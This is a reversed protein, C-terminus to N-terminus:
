RRCLDTMQPTGRPRGLVIQRGSVLQPVEEQMMGPPCARIVGGTGHDHHIPSWIPERIMFANVQDKARAEKEHDRYMLHSNYANWFLMLKLHRSPLGAKSRVPARYGGTKNLKHTLNEFKHDNLTAIVVIISWL